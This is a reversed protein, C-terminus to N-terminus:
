RWSSSLIGSNKPNLSQSCENGNYRPLFVDSSSSSSCLITPLNLTRVILNNCTAFGLFNNRLMNLSSIEQKLVYDNLYINIIVMLLPLNCHIRRVCEWWVEYKNLTSDFDPFMRQGFEELHFRGSGRKELQRAVFRNINQHSDVDNTYTPWFFM